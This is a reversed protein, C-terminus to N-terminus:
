RALKSMWIAVSVLFSAVALMLLRAPSVVFYKDLVYLDLTRWKIAFLGASVASLACVVALCWFAARWIHRDIM